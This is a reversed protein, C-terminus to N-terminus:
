GTLKEFVLRVEVRRSKAHCEELSAHDIKAPCSSSRGNLSASSQIDLKIQGRHIQEALDFEKILEAGVARARSLGLELNGQKGLPMPDAHGRLELATLSWGTPARKIAQRFDEKLDELERQDLPKDSKSAFHIEAPLQACQQPLTSLLRVDTAELEIRHDTLSSGKDQTPFRLLSRSGVGHWLVQARSVLLSGDDLQCGQVNLEHDSSLQWLQQAAGNSVVVDSQGRYIGLREFTLALTPNIPYQGTILITVYIPAFVNIAAALLINMTRSKVSKSSRWATVFASALMGQMSLLAVAWWQQFTILLLLALISVLGSAVWEAADSFANNAAAHRRVCYVVVCHSAVFGSSLAAWMATPAMQGVALLVVLGVACLILCAGALQAIKLILPKKSGDSSFLHGALALWPDALHIGLVGVVLMVTGFSAAVFLLFVSDSASVGSPFFGIVAFCYAFLWAGGYLLGLKTLLGLWNGISDTLDSNGGSASPRTFLRRVASVHRPTAGRPQIRPYRYM